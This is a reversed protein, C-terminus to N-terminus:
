CEGCDCEKRLNYIHMRIWLPDSVSIDNWNPYARNFIIAQEAAEAIEDNSFIM